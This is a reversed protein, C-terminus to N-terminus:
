DALPLEFEAHHLIGDCMIDLAPHQGQQLDQTSSFALRPRAEKPEVLVTMPFTRRLFFLYAYRLALEIQRAQPISREGKMLPALISEFEARSGLDYTFGKGSYHASGAVVVPTGKVALELGVTSAYVCGVTAMSMLAYSDIPEEPPIVRVNEPLQGNQRTVWDAVRDYSERGPVQTEAPHV